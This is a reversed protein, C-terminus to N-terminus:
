LSLHGTLFDVRKTSRRKFTICLRQMYYKSCFINNQLLILGFFALNGKVGMSFWSPFNYNVHLLSRLAVVITFIGVM